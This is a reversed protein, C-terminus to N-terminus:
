SGGLPLRPGQPLPLPEGALDVVGQGLAEGADDHEQLRGLLGQGGALLGGAPLDGLSNLGGPLAEALGAPQHSRKRGLWQHPLRQRSGQLEERAPQGLLRADVSPGHDCSTRPREGGSVLDREQAHGLLRQRVHTPM